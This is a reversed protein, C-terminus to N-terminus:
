HLYQFYLLIKLAPQLHGPQAQSVYLKNKHRNRIKKVVQKVIPSGMHVVKNCTQTDPWSLATFIYM